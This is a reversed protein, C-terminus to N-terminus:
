LMGFSFLISLLFLHAKCMKLWKPHRSLTSVRIAAAAALLPLLDTVYYQQGGVRQCPEKVKEM